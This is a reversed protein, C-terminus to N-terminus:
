LNSNLEDAINSLFDFDSGEKIIECYTDNKIIERADEISVVYYSTGDFIIAHFTLTIEM